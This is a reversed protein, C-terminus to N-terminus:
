RVRVLARVRLPIGGTECRRRALKQIHEIMLPSERLYAQVALGMRLKPLKMAFREFVELTLHLDRYEEMDLNVLKGSRNAAEMLPGLRVVAEEVTADHAWPSHPGMVSSVKISVYDVDPRNLLEITRNLRSSAHEDGLVAEGLLNINLSAGSKRLRALAPGLDRGIDVVLDGLLLSFARRVAPLMTRPAPAVGLGLGARLYPPLFPVSQRALRALNKAAVAPDEPRLVGDVFELTFRLGDPHDLASALLKAARPEPHSLSRQAWRRATRVAKDTLAQNTVNSVPIIKGWAGAM